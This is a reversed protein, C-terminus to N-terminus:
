RRSGAEKPATPAAVARSALIALPIRHMVTVGSTSKRTMKDAAWGSAIFVIVGQPPEQSVYRLACSPHAKFYRPVRKRRVDGQVKPRSMTRALGCSCVAIDPREPALCSLMAVAM